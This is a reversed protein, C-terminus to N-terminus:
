YNVYYRNKVMGDLHSTLNVPFVEKKRLDSWVRDISGTILVFLGTMKNGEKPSVPFVGSVSSFGLVSPVELRSLVPLM